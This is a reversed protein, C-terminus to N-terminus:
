GRALHANSPRYPCRRVTGFPRGRRAVMFHSGEPPSPPKDKKPATAVLMIINQRSFIDSMQGTQALPYPQDEGRRERLARVKTM